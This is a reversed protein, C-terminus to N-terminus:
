CAFCITAEHRCVANSGESLACRFYSHGTVKGGNIVHLEGHRL